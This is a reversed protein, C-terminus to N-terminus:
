EIEHFVVPIPWNELRTVAAATFHAPRSILSDTPRGTEDSSSYRVFIENGNSIVSRVTVKSSFIVLFEDSFDIAPPGTNLYEALVDTARYGPQAGGSEALLAQRARLQAWYEALQQQNDIVQDSRQNEGAIYAATYIRFDLAVLRIDSRVITISLASLTLLVIGPGFLQPWKM